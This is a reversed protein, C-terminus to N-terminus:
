PKYGVMWMLMLKAWDSYSGHKVKRKVGILRDATEEKFKGEAMMQLENRLMNVAETTECDIFTEVARQDPIGSQGYNQVWYSVRQYIPYTPDSM